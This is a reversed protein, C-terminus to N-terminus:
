FSSKAVLLLCAVRLILKQKTSHANKQRLLCCAFEIKTDLIHMKKADAIHVEEGCCAALLILEKCPFTCKKFTCTKAALNESKM